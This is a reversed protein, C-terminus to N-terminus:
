QSAWVIRAMWVVEAQQLIRDGHAPNMSALEITKATRRKLEKAMVEGDHTKVVVRDGKRIQAAPSVIIMDGDRYLPQMSDGSVELAYVTEDGVGPFVAEDWGTGAPFGADDFFGGAGAQAFGIVPIRRPAAPKQDTTLLSMFAEVSDGTAELVKAVSETSPWRARGDPTTRKSKNFTTADLRAKRALGSASLGHRAALADIANWIQAHTLM